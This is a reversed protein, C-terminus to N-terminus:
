MNLLHFKNKHFEIIGEDQMASLERSLACRNVGLYVAMDNRNFPLVFETRTGGQSCEAFFTILKDRISIKSLIQIRNNMQLTRTALNATFRRRMEIATPTCAEHDLNDTYMKLFRGSSTAKIYVPSDLKLYCLSEGFSEGPGVSTMIIQNGDLDDMYVQVTGEEVLGFFNLRKAITNLLDGKNFKIEKAGFFNLAIQFEKDSLGKFYVSSRVIKEQM